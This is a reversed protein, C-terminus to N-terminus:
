RFQSFAIRILQFVQKFFRPFYIFKYLFSVEIRMMKMIDQGVPWKIQSQIKPTKLYGLFGVLNKVSEQGVKMPFFDTLFKTPNKPSKSVGFIWESILQGKAFIVKNVLYRSM